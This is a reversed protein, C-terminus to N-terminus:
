RNDTTNLGLSWCSPCPVSPGPLAEEYHSARIWFLKGANSTSSGLISLSPRWAPPSNQALAQTLGELGNTAISGSGPQHISGLRFEPQDRYWGQKIMHPLAHRM